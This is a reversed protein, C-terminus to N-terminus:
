NKQVHQSIIIAEFRMKNLNTIRAVEKEVEEKSNEKSILIIDREEQLEDINNKEKRM